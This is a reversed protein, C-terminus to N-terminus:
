FSDRVNQTDFFTSFKQIDITASMLVVKLDNRTQLLAKLLGLLIDSQITREHVEDMIIVSYSFIFYFLFTFFSKLNPDLIAERLLM